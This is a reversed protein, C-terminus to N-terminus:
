QVEGVVLQLPRQRREGIQAGQLADGKGVILESTRLAEPRAISMMRIAEAEQLFLEPLDDLTTSSSIQRPKTKMSCVLSTAKM